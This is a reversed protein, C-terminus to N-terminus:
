HELINTKNTKPKGVSKDAFYHHTYLMAPILAVAVVFAFDYM